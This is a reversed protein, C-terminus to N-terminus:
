FRSAVKRGRPVQEAEFVVGMGGRGIERILRYEGLQIPPSLDVASVASVGSARRPTFDSLADEVLELGDLCEALSDAITEHSALFDERRPPQGERRLRAYEELAQTIRDDESNALERDNASSIGGEPLGSEQSMMVCGGSADETLDSM